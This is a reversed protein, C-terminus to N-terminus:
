RLMKRGLAFRALGGATVLAAMIWIVAVPWGPGILPTALMLSFLAATEAGEILGRPMVISTAAGVRGNASGALQRKELVASLYTWTITNFYFSALLVAVAVWAGHSGIGIAVGLPVLAYVAVDVTMDLYGGADSGAGNRLRAVVGDLGDLVRNALWAAVALPWVGFAASAAAGLGVLGAILTITDPRVGVLLRAVPRLVQQSIPRLELDFM